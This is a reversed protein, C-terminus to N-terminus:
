HTQAIQLFNEVVRPSTYFTKAVEFPSTLLFFQYLTNNYYGISVERRFCLIYLNKDYYSFLVM